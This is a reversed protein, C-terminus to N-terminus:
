MHLVPCIYAGVLNNNNYRYEAVGGVYKKMATDSSMGYFLKIKKGNKKIVEGACQDHGALTAGLMVFDAGAGFANAVDGPCSCGGDKSLVHAMEVTGTTDMNAAIIPIGHYSQKSNRFTFMRQLDVELRSREPRFLVDKFAAERPDSCSMQLPQKERTQVPCRYLSSRKPRFLVDKFDLKVDVRPM